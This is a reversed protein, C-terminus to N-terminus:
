NGHHLSVLEHSADIPQGSHLLKGQRYGGQRRAEGGKTEVGALFVHTYIEAIMLSVLDISHYGDCKRYSRVIKINGRRGFHVKKLEYGDM